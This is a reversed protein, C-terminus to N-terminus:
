NFWSEDGIGKGLVFTELINNQRRKILRLWRREMLKTKSFIIKLFHLHIFISLKTVSVYLFTKIKKFVYERTRHEKQIALFESNSFRICISLIIRYSSAKYSSAIVPRIIFTIITLANM